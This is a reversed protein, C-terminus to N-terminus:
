GFGLMSCVNGAQADKFHFADACV